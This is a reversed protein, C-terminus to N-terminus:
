SADFSIRWDAIWANSGPSCAATRSSSLQGIARDSDTSATCSRWHIADDSYEAEIQARREEPLDLTWGANARLWDEREAATLREVTM